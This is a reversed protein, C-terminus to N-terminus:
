FCYLELMGSDAVANIDLKLSARRLMVAASDLDNDKLTELFVLDPPFRVSKKDDAQIQKQILSARRSM